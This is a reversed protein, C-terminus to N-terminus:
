AITGEGKFRAIDEWTFGYELLVEETHQGFEPAPMRVSPPTESMMVPNEVQEIRGQQPHDYAVFCGSERAQVDNVAEKLTQRPAYPIGELLPRWEDYTKTIFIEQFTQRLQPTDESRGERTQYKPDEALDDRGLAKCFRAWYRDPQLITFALQRGDKTLYMGGLPSMVQVRDAYFAMVEMIAQQAKMQLEIPPDPARLDAVDLGTILAASVDYSIQYLGCHLLSVDVEQGIGTRERVYLAQMIGFAFAMGAVNDGMGVRYGICPVGPMSMLYPFSSRAWFATTDYAPVDKDPGKKGYGTINGFIIRPNIKKLTEYDLEFRDLEFSRLNSVFVDASELMKHMIARGSASSLDVTCSRKNRNYNEWNFDFDNPWGVGLEKQAETFHRWYDGTVPNEIHIVDAGFDGLLRACMPVAAVQSCDIVKIGELAMAMKAVEQM